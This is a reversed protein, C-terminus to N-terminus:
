LVNPAEPEIKVKNEFGILIEGMRKHIKQAEEVCSYFYTALILEKRKRFTRNFFLLTSGITNDWEDSNIYESMIGAIEISRKGSIGLVENLKM